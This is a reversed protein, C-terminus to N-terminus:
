SEITLVVNVIRFKASGMLCFSRIWAAWWRLDMSASALSIRVRPTDKSSVDADPTSDGCSRIFFAISDTLPIHASRPVVSSSM